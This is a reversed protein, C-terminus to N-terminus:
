KGMALGLAGPLATTALLWEKRPGGPSGATHRTFLPQFGSSWLALVAATISGETRVAHQESLSKVRADSLAKM